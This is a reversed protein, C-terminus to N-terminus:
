GFSTWQHNISGGLSGVIKVLDDSWRTPPRGVARRGIRSAMRFGESGMPWCDKGPETGQLQTRDFEVSFDLCVPRINANYVVPTSLILLAIDDKFLTQQGRFRLPIKIESRCLFLISHTFNGIRVPGARSSSSLGERESLLDTDQLPVFIPRPSSSILWSVDSMHAEPDMPENWPRRIKGLAVVYRSPSQLKEAGKWFCHAPWFTYKGSLVISNSILSGGCTQGYPSYYKDYVGAHWPVEGLAAYGDTSPDGKTIGCEPQCITVHDWFGANCHMDTINGPHYYNPRNCVPVAVTGSPEYENCLRTSDSTDGPEKCHYKVSPHPTLQCFRSCQPKPESWKNDSLCFASSTEVVRYGPDCTVTLFIKDYSQGPVADPRNHVSYTGHAPYPPLVCGGVRVKIFTAHPLIHTFTTFTNDNCKQGSKTPATSVVGRLFYRRTGRDENPFVLGGGSDGKCVTAGEGLSRYQCRERSFRAM